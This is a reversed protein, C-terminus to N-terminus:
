REAEDKVIEGTGGVEDAAIGFGVLHSRKGGNGIGGGAPDIAATRNRGVWNRAETIEEPHIGPPIGM